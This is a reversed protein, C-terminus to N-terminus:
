VVAELPVAVGCSERWDAHFGEKTEGRQPPRVHPLSSASRPLEQLPQDQHPHTQTPPNPSHTTQILPHTPHTPSHPQTPLTLHINIPHTNTSHIPLRRRIKNLYLKSIHHNLQRCQHNHWNKEGCEM